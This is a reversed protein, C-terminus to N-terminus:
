VDASNYRKVNSGAGAAAGLADRGLPRAIPHPDRVTEAPITAARAFFAAFCLMLRRLM